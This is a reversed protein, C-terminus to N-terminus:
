IMGCEKMIATLKPRVDAPCLNTPIDGQRNWAERTTASFERKIDAIWCTKVTKCHRQRYTEQVSNYTM